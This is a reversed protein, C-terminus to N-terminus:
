VNKGGTEEMHNIKGIICGFRFIGADDMSRTTYWHYQSETLTITENTETDRLDIVYHPELFGNDYTTKEIM